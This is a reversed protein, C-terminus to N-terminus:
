QGGGAASDSSAKTGVGPSPSRGLGRLIEPMIEEVLPELVHTLDPILWECIKRVRETDVSDAVGGALRSVIDPRADHIRDIVGLATNILGAIEYTDLDSVSESLAAELGTPNTEEVTRLKRSVARAQSTATAGFSSLLSLFIAPNSKLADSVAHAWAERDESLAIRAKKLLDPKLESLCDTLFSTLYIQFLPKSGTGLRLSGTHVRRVLECVTNVLGAVTDGRLDRVTTLLIDALLDPSFQEDIPRLAECLAKISTNLLANAAVTLTGVKAPYKWLQENFTRIAEIVHPDSGEITELIEGFDTNKLFADIAEGRDNGRVPIGSVRGANITRSLATLLTGVDAATSGDGTKMDPGPRGLRSAAWLAPAALKNKLRSEGAWTHVAEKLIESLLARSGPSRMNRGIIRALIPNISAQHDTTNM